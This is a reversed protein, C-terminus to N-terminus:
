AQAAASAHMGRWAAADKELVPSLAALSPRTQLPRLVGCLSPRRRRSPSGFSEARKRAFGRRGTPRFPPGGVALAANIRADPYSVAWATPCSWLGPSTDCRVVWVMQNGAGKKTKARWARAAVRCLLEPAGCRRGKGRTRTEGGSRSSRSNPAQEPSRCTDTCGAASLPRPRLLAVADLHAVGRAPRSTPPRGRNRRGTVRHRPLHSGSFRWPATSSGLRVAGPPPTAATPARPARSRIGSRRGEPYNRRRQQQVRCSRTTRRPPLSAAVPM